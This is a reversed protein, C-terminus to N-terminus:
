RRGSHLNLNLTGQPHSAKKPNPPKLWRHVRERSLGANLFPLASLHLTEEEGQCVFAANRFSSRWRRIRATRPGAGFALSLPEVASSSSVAREKSPDRPDSSARPAASPHCAAGWCIIVWFDLAAVLAFRSGSEGLNPFYTALLKTSYLRPGSSREASCREAGTAEPQAGCLRPVAEWLM